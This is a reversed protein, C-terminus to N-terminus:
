YGLKLNVYKFELRKESSIRCKRPDYNDVSSVNGEKKFIFRRSGYNKGDSRISHGMFNKEYSKKRKEEESLKVPMPESNFIINSDTLNSKDPITELNIINPGIIMDNNNNNNNKQQYEKFYNKPEQIDVVLDCNLIMIAKDPRCEIIDIEDIKGKYKVQITDKETLCFYNRLNLELFTKYNPENIFKTQHPRLKVYIGPRLVIKRINVRQGEELCLTSFLHPPIYCKGEEATFESVGCHSYINLLINLIRFLVPQKTNDFNKQLSLKELASPPLIINNSFQINSSYIEGAPYAKYVEIFPESLDIRKIKRDM